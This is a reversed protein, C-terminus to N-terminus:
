FKPNLKFNTTQYDMKLFLFLLHNFKYQTIMVTLVVHQEVDVLEYLPAHSPFFHFTGLPQQLIFQRM